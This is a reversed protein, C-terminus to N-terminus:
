LNFLSMIGAGVLMWYARIVWRRWFEKRRLRKMKAVYSCIDVSELTM